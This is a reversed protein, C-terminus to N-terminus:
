KFLRKRSKRSSPMESPELATWGLPFGMLWEVWTPNLQGGHIQAVEEGLNSKGRDWAAHRSDQEKPTSWMQAAANQGKGRFKEAAIEPPFGRPSMRAAGELALRWTDRNSGSMYGTGGQSNPTPWLGCESGGIRPVLPALQFKLRSRKTAAVKWTLYCQTSSWIPRTMLAQCMTRLSGDPIFREYSAYCRQGSTATMKKAEDSGPLPSHSALFDGQSSISPPYTEDLVAERLNACGGKKKRKSRAEPTQKPGIADFSQPTPWFRKSM